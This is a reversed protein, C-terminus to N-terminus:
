GCCSPGATWRLYRFLERGQAAPTERFDAAFHVPTSCDQKDIPLPVDKFVTLRNHPRSKVGNLQSRKDAGGEPSDCDGKFLARDAVDLSRCKRWQRPFEGGLGNRNGEDNADM